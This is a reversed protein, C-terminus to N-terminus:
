FSGEDIQVIDINMNLRPNLSREFYSIQVVQTPLQLLCLALPWDPPAWPATNGTVSALLFSGRPSSTMWRLWDSSEVYGASLLCSQSDRCGPFYLRTRKKRTNDPLYTLQLILNIYTVCCINDFYRLFRLVNTVNDNSVCYFQARIFSFM